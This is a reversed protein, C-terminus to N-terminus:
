AYKDKFFIREMNYVTIRVQFKITDLLITRHDTIEAAIEGFNKTLSRM